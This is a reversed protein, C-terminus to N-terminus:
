TRQLVLVSLDNGDRDSSTKTASRLAIEAIRDAPAQSHQHLAKGLADLKQQRDRGKLQRLFGATVIVLVEGRQLTQRWTRCEAEFDTGLPQGDLDLSEWGDARLLLIGFEGAAALEARGSDPDLSAYLLSAFVDGAGSEWLTENVREVMQSAHHRYNAHAKLSATVTATTMAAALPEGPVSGVAAALTGDPVVFWDHYDGGVQGAQETRGAVQWGDVLPAIKPRQCQQRQAVAELQRDNARAAIGERLLVERELDSALRGAIIEIVNTERDSFDRPESCFMWLTGLEMTPSAVPVCVASAFGEPCNWHPLLRADELVIAHGSLAEVDAVAGCLPRPPDLLRDPPLGWASRLRLETTADDLVYLAAAQCGVAEAGGQLVAELRRALHEEERPHGAVPIATALEAAQRWVTERTRHMEGLLEAITAVLQRPEDLHGAFQGSDARSRSPELLLRGPSPQERVPIECSWAANEPVPDSTPPVFHLSWGTAHEFSDCLETLGAFDDLAPATTEPSEEVHLKLYTPPLQNM